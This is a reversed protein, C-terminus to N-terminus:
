IVYFRTRMREICKLLLTILEDNSLTPISIDETFELHRNKNKNYVSIHTPHVFFTILSSACNIYIERNYMQRLRSHKKDQSYLQTPIKQMNLSTQLTLLENCLDAIM